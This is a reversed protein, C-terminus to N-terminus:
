NPGAGDQVAQYGLWTEATWNVHENMWAIYEMTNNEHDAEPAPSTTFTVDLQTDLYDLLPALQPTAKLYAPLNVTEYRIAIPATVLSDQYMQPIEHFIHKIKAARLALINQFPTGSGDQQLEYIPNLQDNSADTVRCTIVQNYSFGLQCTENALPPQDWRPREIAWEKEVFPRWPLSLGNQDMQEMHAPMFRPHLRMQEVWDYPNRVVAFILTRPTPKDPPGQFWTGERQLKTTVTINPYMGQLQEKLWPVGSVREGLIVIQQVQQQQEQQQQGQQQHGQQQPVQQQQGQQQQVQQQQVQPQQVQQQPIQQQQVQQQQVQQQQVQQQQVQQQQVQQQQVQQQEVQQQQVQQQAVQQQQVQQQEVQQQQEQQQQGQQQKEQVPQQREQVPQEQVQVQQEQVQVPQQKEQVQQQQVKQQEVQQQPDDDEDEVDLKEVNGPTANSNDGMMSLAAIFVIFVLGFGVLFRFRYPSHQQHHSRRDRRLRQRVLISSDHNNENNNSSSSDLLGEHEVVNDEDPQWEYDGNWEQAAPEIYFPNVQPRATAMTYYLRHRKNQPQLSRHFSSQRMDFSHIQIMGSLCAVGVVSWFLRNPNLNGNFIHPVNGMAM